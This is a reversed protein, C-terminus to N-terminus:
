KKSTQLTCTHSTMDAYARRTTNVEPTHHQGRMASDKHEQHQLACTCPPASYMSPMCNARASACPPKAVLPTSGLPVLRLHTLTRHLGPGMLLQRQTTHSLSSPLRQQPHQVTATNHRRQMHTRMRNQQVQKCEYSSQVHQLPGCKDWNHGAM